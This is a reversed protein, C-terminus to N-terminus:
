LGNGEHVDRILKTKFEEFDDYYFYPPKTAWMFIFEDMFFAVRQWCNEEYDDFDYKEGITKHFEIFDNGKLHYKDKYLNVFDFISILFEKYEEITLKSLIKPNFEEYLKELIRAIILERNEM